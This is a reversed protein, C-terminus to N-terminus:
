PSLLRMIVEPIDSLSAWFGCELRPPLDVCISPVYNCANKVSYVASIAIHGVGGGQMALCRSLLGCDWDRTAAGLAKKPGQLGEGTGSNVMSIIVVAVM